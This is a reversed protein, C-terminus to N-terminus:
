QGSRTGALRFLEEGKVLELHYFYQNEGRKEKQSIKYIRYVITRHSKLPLQIPNGNMDVFMNFGLRNSIEQVEGEPYVLYFSELFM